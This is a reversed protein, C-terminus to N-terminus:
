NSIKKKKGITHVRSFFLFLYYIFLHDTAFAPPFCQRRFHLLYNIMNLLNINSTGQVEM